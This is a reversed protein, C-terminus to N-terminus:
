HSVAHLSTITANTAITLNTKLYKFMEIVQEPTWKGESYALVSMIINLEQENWM